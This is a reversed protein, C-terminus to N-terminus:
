GPWWSVLGNPPPICKNQDDDARATFNGGLLLGFLSIGVLTKNSKMFIGEQLQRRPIAATPLAARGAAQYDGGFSSRIRGAVSSRPFIQGALIKSSTSRQCSGSIAKANLPRGPMHM